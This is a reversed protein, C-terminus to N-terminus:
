WGGGGGGGGGGGSSGGGSSGSSWGSSGSSSRSVPPASAINVSSGFSSGLATFATAFAAATVGTALNDDNYWAPRYNFKELVDGFKKCWENSLGLVMAYPLLKEFLEPTRQPPTLINLRHEEATKIYMKFGEFEADLKAGEETSRNAMLKAYIFYMVSLLIFFLVSSRNVEQSGDTVVASMTGVFLFTIMGSLLCGGKVKTGAYLMYHCVVFIFPSATLIAFSNGEKQNILMYLVIVVNVLLGGLAISGWNDNFFDELKWQKELSDKLCKDAEKFKTYNTRDVKVDAKPLQSRLEEINLNAKLDPNNEALEQIKKLEASDEAVFIAQHIEREEPRLRETNNKGVLLYETKYSKKECKISMAGKVAMEILTAAFAKNEYKKNSLYFVSAPSLDRPPKFTPIAVPKQPRKGIKIRTILFYCACIFFGLMGCISSGNEEWFIEDETPPPPRSIIDRPFSAAITLGEGVAFQRTATFAQINGRNDAKCANETSGEVGTYCATKIGKSKGPLTIAASAKEIPFSWENGTVNWYLEDFDDLFGVQGYSEYVITYDYEGAKLLVNADGIYIVLNGNEEKTHYKSDAGSCKVALVKYDMPVKKGKNNKRFLPLKRFIGRKIEEGAAYVKINEAVEIRGNTDIAIDSHFRIIRESQQGYSPLCFFLAILLIYFLKKM